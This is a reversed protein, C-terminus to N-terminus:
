SYGMLAATREVYERVQERILERRQLLLEDM